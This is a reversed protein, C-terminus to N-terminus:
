KQLDYRSEFDKTMYTSLGNDEKIILMADIGNSVALGLGGKGSVCLATAFIDATMSDLAVVTASVINDGIPMGTKPDIIHSYRKGAITFYREYDGSTDVGKDTVNITYIIKSRDRPHQIGIKWRKEKSRAGICFMDGGASVVANRIGLDKLVKTARDVAYGKAVAGLDLEVGEQAFKVTRSRDDLFVLDAGVRSRADTISAESPPEGSEGARKWLDRLPKVTIDFSGKTKASYELSRKIVFFLEESVAVAGQAASRNLRSLESDPKYASFVEELRSIENFAASIASKTDKGEEFPVELRVM